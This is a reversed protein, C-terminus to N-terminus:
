DTGKRDTEGNTAPMSAPETYAPRKKGGRKPRTEQKPLRAIEEDTMPIVMRTSGVNYVRDMARHNSHKHYPWRKYRQKM